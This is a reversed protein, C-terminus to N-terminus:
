HLLDMELIFDRGVDADWNQLHTLVDVFHRGYPHNIYALRHMILWDQLTSVLRRTTRALSGIVPTGKIVEKMKIGKKNM